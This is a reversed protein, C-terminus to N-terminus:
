VVLEEHGKRAGANTVNQDGSASSKVSSSGRPKREVKLRRKRRTESAVRSIQLRIQM